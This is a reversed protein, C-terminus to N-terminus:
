SKNFANSRFLRAIEEEVRWKETEYFAKRLAKTYIKIIDEYFTEDNQRNLSIRTKFQLSSHLKNIPDTGDSEIGLSKFGFILRGYNDSMRKAKDNLEDVEARLIKPMPINRAKADKELQMKKDELRILYFTYDLISQALEVFLKSEM